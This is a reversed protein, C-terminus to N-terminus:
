CVRDGICVCNCEFVCCLCKQNGATLLIMKNLFLFFFYRVNELSFCMWDKLSVFCYILRIKYCGSWDIVMMTKIMLKRLIKNMTMVQARPPCTSPSPNSSWDVVDRNQVINCPIQFLCLQNSPMSNTSSQFWQEEKILKNKKTEPM